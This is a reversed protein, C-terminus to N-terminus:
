GHAELQIFRTTPVYSLALARKLAPNSRITRVRAKKSHFLMAAIFAPSEMTYRRLSFFLTRFPLRNNNEISNHQIALRDHANVSIGNDIDILFTPFSNNRTNAMINGYEHQRRNYKYM